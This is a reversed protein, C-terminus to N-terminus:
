ARLSLASEWISHVMGNAGLARALEVMRVGPTASGRVRSCASKQHDPRLWPHHSM